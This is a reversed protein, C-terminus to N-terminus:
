VSRPSALRRLGFSLLLALGLEFLLLGTTSWTHLAAVWVVILCNVVVLVATAQLHTLGADLLMHHIHNRDPAFPSKGQCLRFAIVRLTDFIPLLLVAVAIAPASGLRFQGVLATERNLEMFKLALVVCVAGTLMAGTDGMFIRAPKLNYRLFAALAGALSFAVVALDIHGAAWFWGGLSLSAMLGISGALGNIGDILNFANVIGIIALVSLGIGAWEPLEQFGFIGYLSTIRVQSKYVLVLAALIQGLLKKAPSLPSLDDKVGLFFLIVLAALVYQLMGFTQVPAWLIIGFLLGAFIAVGGLSPTPEDHASRANPQDYWQKERAVQIIAPVASYTLAFATIFGLPVALM